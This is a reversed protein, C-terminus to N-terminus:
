HLCFYILLVHFPHWELFPEINPFKTFLGTGLLYSSHRCNSLLSLITQYHHKYSRSVKQYIQSKNSRFPTKKKENFVYENYLYIGMILLEVSRFLDDKSLRGMRAAWTTVRYIVLTIPELTSKWPRKRGICESVKELVFPLM